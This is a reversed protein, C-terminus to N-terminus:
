EWRLSLMSLAHYQRRGHFITFSIRSRTQHNQNQPHRQQHLQHHCLSLTSMIKKELSKEFNFRAFDIWGTTPDFTLPHNSIYAKLWYDLSRLKYLPHYIKLVNDSHYINMTSTNSIHIKFPTFANTPYFSVNQQSLSSFPRSLIYIM